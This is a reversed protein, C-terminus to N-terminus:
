DVPTGDPKIVLWLGGFEEVDHCLVRGPADDVYFYLPQRRYTVQRKGGRRRTTGLLRRRAGKGAVPRGKTLVPPWAKACDGYCESEPSDEKDFVYVAQGRKDGLITGFQSDIAKIRTGRRRRESAPRAATPTPEATATPAAAAPSRTPERADEGCGAVLTTAAVLCAIRYRLM